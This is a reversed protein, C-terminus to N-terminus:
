VFCCMNSGRTPLQTKIMLDDLPGDAAYRARQQQGAM